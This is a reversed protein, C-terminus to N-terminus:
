TSAGSVCGESVCVRALLWEEQHSPALLEHQVKGRESEREREHQATGGGGRGGRKENWQMEPSPPPAQAIGM